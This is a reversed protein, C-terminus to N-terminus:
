IFSTLIINNTTNYMNIYMLKLKCKFFYLKTSLLGKQYNYLFTLIIKFDISDRDNELKSKFNNALNSCVVVNGTVYGKNNDIRDITKDSFKLKKPNPLNLTMLIGTYYCKDMSMLEKYEDFTISFSYGKTKANKRKSRYKKHLSM